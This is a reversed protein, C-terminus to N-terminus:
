VPLSASLSAKAFYATVRGKFGVKRCVLEALDNISINNGCGAYIPQVLVSGDANRVTLVSRAISARQRQIYLRLSWFIMAPM